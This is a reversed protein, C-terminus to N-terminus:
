MMGPKINQRLREVVKRIRGARTEPRKADKIWGIYMTQYSNAFANFNKWAPPAKRLAKELDAPLPPKEKSSYAAQWRGNAKAQKITELGAETMQGSNILAQARNRNLKSWISNKRRPSFRLIYTAADVSQMKGDIWGSCIAEEVADDYYVGGADAGKKRIVLWASAASNHNSALWARWESRGEFLLPKNITDNNKM